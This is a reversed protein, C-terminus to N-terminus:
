KEHIRYLQNTLQLKENEGLGIYIKDHICFSIHNFLGGSPIEGVKVWSDQQPNYQLIDSLIKGDTNVGGYHM